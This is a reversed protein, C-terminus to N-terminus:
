SWATIDTATTGTSRIRSALVPYSGVPLTGTTYTAGDKSSVYSVTGSGNITIQRCPETLDTSDNPTVAYAGIAPATLGPEKNDFRNAM